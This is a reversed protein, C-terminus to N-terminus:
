TLKGLTKLLEDEDPFQGTSRKSYQLTGDVM